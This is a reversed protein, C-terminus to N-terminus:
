RRRCRWRTRCERNGCDPRPRSCSSGSRSGPIRRWRPWAGRPRPGRRRRGRRSSRRALGVGAVVGDGPQDGGALRLRHDGLVDVVQVLGGAHRGVPHDLQVAVGAVGGAQFAAQAVLQGLQLREVLGGAVQGRAARAAADDLGGGDREALRHRLGRHLAGLDLRQGAVEEQHQARRQHDIGAAPKGSSARRFPAASTITLRSGVSWSSSASRTSWSSIPGIIDLTTGALKVECASSKGRRSTAPLVAAKTCTSPYM